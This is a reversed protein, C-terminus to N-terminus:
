LEKRSSMKSQESSPLSHPDWAQGIDVNETFEERWPLLKWTSGVFDASMRAPTYAPAQPAANSNAPKPSSLIFINTYWTYKNSFVIAQTKFNTHLSLTLYYEITFLVSPKSVILNCNNTM